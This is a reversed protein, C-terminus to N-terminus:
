GIRTYGEEFAKAPSWSLYGDNYQVLFGGIYEAPFRLPRSNDTTRARFFEQPVGVPLEPGVAQEAYVLYHGDAHPDPTIQGIKFAGVVKHCRWQPLGEIM